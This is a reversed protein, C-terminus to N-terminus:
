CLFNVVERLIREKHTLKRNLSKLVRDMEELGKEIAKQDSNLTDESVISLPEDDSPSFDINFQAPDFRELEMKLKERELENM